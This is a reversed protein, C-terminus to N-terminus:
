SVKVAKSDNPIFGIKKNDANLLMKYLQNHFDQLAKDTPMNSSVAIKLKDQNQM